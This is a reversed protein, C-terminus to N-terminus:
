KSGWPKFLEHAIGLCNLARGVVFDVVEYISSQNLYFAPSAPLITSGADHAKLMNELHVRNFPLERVVLILPRREKLTVDASREILNLSSGHAIGSLTKMSCPMVIMGDSYVSGSAIKAYFNDSKHVQYDLNTKEKFVRTSYDNFNEKKFDWDVEHKLISDAVDSVVLNVKAKNSLARLLRTSYLMGSAGSIGIVIEKM